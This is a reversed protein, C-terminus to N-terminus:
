ISPRILEGKSTDVNSHPAVGEPALDLGKLGVKDDLLYFAAGHMGHENTGRDYFGEAFVHDHESFYREFVARHMRDDTTFPADGHSRKVGLKRTVRSEMVQDYFVRKTGDIRL